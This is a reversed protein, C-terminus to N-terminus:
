CLFVFNLKFVDKPKSPFVQLGLLVIGTEQAQKITGTSLVCLLSQQASGPFRAGIV